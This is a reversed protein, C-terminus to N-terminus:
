RSGGSPGHYPGKADRGHLCSFCLKGIGTSYLALKNVQRRCHPCTEIGPGKPATAIRPIRANREM